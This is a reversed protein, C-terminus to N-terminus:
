RACTRRDAAVDLVYSMELATVLETNFTQSRDSISLKAMRAKLEEIVEPAIPRTFDLRKRVARTTTLVYDVSARDLEEFNM